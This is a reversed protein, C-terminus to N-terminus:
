AEPDETSKEKRANPNDQGKPFPRGRPKIAWLGLPRLGEELTQYLQTQRSATGPKLRELRRKLEPIFPDPTQLTDIM